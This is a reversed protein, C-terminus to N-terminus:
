KEEDELLQLFRDELTQHRPTVEYLRGGMEVIAAVLDPVRDAELNTFTLQDGEDDIRGFPLLKNKDAQALGSVRVRVAMGGLLEDM